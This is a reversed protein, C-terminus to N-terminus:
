VAKIWWGDSDATKVTWRADMLAYSYQRYEGNATPYTGDSNDIEGGPTMFGSTAVVLFHRIM